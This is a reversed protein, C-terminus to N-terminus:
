LSTRDADINDYYILNNRKLFKVKDGVVDLYLTSDTLITGKKNAERTIAKTNTDWCDRVIKTTEEVSYPRIKVLEEKKKTEFHEITTCIQNVFNNIIEPYPKYLEVETFYKKFHHSPIFKNQGKEDIFGVEDIITIDSSKWLSTKNIHLPSSGEGMSKYIITGKDISFGERIAQSLPIRVKMKNM